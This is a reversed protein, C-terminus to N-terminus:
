RIRHPARMHRREMHGHRVCKQTGRRCEHRRKATWNARRMRVRGAINKLLRSAPGTATLLDHVHYATIAFAGPQDISEQQLFRPGWRRATVTVIM